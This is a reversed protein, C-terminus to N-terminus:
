PAPLPPRAVAAEPAVEGGTGTTVGAPSSAEPQPLGYMDFASRAEEGASREYGELVAGTALDIKQGPRLEIPQLAGPLLISVSGGRGRGPVVRIGEATIEDPRIGSGNIWSTDAGRQRLVMGSIRIEPVVPGKDAEAVPAPASEPVAEVPPQPTRFDDRAQDLLRREAATTFLRDFANAPAPAALVLVSVAAVLLGLAAAPPAHQAHAGTAPEPM